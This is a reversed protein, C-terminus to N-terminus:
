SSQEESVSTASKLFYYILTGLVVGFINRGVDGINASRSPVFWQFLEALAAFGAVGMVVQWRPLRVTALALPTLVVFGLAHVFNWFQYVSSFFTGILPKLFSMFKFIKWTYPSPLLCGILIIVSLLVLALSM